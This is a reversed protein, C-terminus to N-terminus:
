ILLNLILILGMVSMIMIREVPWNHFGLYVAVITLGFIMIGIGMLDLKLLMNFHQESIISFTHYCSSSLMCFIIACCAIASM